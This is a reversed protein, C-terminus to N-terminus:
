NSHTNHPTAIGIYGLIIEKRSESEFQKKVGSVLLDDPYEKELESLITKFSVTDNLLYYDMLKEVKMNKLEQSDLQKVSFNETKISIYKLYCEQAKVTENQLENFVGLMLYGYTFNPKIEIYEEVTKIAKDFQKLNGYLRAQNIYIVKNRKYFRKAKDFESNALKAAEKDSIGIHPGWYIDLARDNLHIGCMLKIVYGLPILIILFAILVIKLKKKTTTDM